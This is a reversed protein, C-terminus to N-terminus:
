RQARATVFKEVVDTKDPSNAVSYDTLKTPWLCHGAVHKTTLIAYKMGADRAVALVGRPGIHILYSEPREPVGKALGAFALERDVGAQGPRGIVIHPGTATAANLTPNGGQLRIEEALAQAAFGDAPNGSGIAISVPAPLVVQRGSDKWEKVPPLPSPGAMAAAACCSFAIAFGALFRVREM